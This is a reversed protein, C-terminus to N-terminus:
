VVSKRDSDESLMGDRLDQTFGLGTRRLFTILQPLYTNDFCPNQHKNRMLGCSYTTGPM